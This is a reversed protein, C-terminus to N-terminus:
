IQRIKRKKPEEKENIINIIERKELYVKSNEEDKENMKETFEQFM